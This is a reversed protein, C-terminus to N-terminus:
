RGTTTSASSFETVVVEPPALNGNLTKVTLVAEINMSAWDKPANRLIANVCKVDML